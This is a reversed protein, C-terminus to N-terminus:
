AHSIFVTLLEGPVLFYSAANIFEVGAFRVIGHFSTWLRIAALSFGRGFWESELFGDVSYFSM